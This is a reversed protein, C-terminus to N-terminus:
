LGRGPNIEAADTATMTCLCAFTVYLLPMAINAVQQKSVTSELKEFDKKIVQVIDETSPLKPRSAQGFM